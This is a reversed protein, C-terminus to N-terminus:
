TKFLIALSGAITLGVIVKLTIGTEMAILKSAWKEPLVGTRVWVANEWEIFAAWRKRMVLMVWLWVSWVVTVILAFAIIALHEALPM